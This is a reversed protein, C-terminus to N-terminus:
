SEVSATEENNKSAGAPMLAVCLAIAGACGWVALAGVGKDFAGGGLYIINRLGEGIYNQPAWPLVWDVWFTPLMPAPLVATCMGLAFVCLMVFVGLPLAIDCLGVTTLMLCFSALWLLLIALVKISVGGIWAVIGYACVAAVFSAVACYGLQVLIARTRETRSAHRPWLLVSCAIGMIITMMFLPMVMFQVSLMASLPGSGESPAEGITEITAQIGAQSLLSTLSTQMTQALMPSKALNLVVDVSPKEASQQAQTISSALEQMPLMLAQPNTQMQPTASLLSPLQEQIAEIVMTQGNMQMQTFDNPIIIAGYFDGNDMAGDLAQKSEVETWAVPAESGEETETSANMMKEVILDGANMEEGNPLTAGEDLNVIAMPVNKPTASFMPTIAIGLICLIAIGVAFPIVFAKDRMKELKNKM